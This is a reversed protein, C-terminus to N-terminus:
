NKTPSPCCDIDKGSSNVKLPNATAGTQIAQSIREKDREAREEKDQKMREFFSKEAKPETAALHAEYKQKIFGCQYQLLIATLHKSYRDVMNADKMLNQLNSSNMGDKDLKALKEDIEEQKRRAKEQANMEVAQTMLLERESSSLTNSKLIKRLEDDIYPLEM